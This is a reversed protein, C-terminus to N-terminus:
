PRTLQELSDFAEQTGDNIIREISDPRQSALRTLNHESLVNRLEDLDVTATELRAQLDERLRQNRQIDNNLRNVTERTTELAVEQQAITRAQLALAEQMNTVYRYGAFAVASIASLVALMIFIKIKGGLFLSLM